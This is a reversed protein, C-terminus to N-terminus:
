TVEHRAVALVFSGDPLETFIFLPIQGSASACWLLARSNSGADAENVGLAIDAIPVLRVNQLATAIDAKPPLASM